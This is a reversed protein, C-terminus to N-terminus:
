TFVGSVAYSAIAEDDLGLVERLIEDTHQGLVPAAHLRPPTESFRTVPGDYPTPGMEGHECTVFFGRHALQPDNYLDSPRAVVSAPVGAAALREVLEWPDQDHCWASLAWDLAAGKAMRGALPTETGCISDLGATACLARWQADTETAIAVYREKGAAQYVGQPCAHDSTHGAPGRMRGNVTYDLVAPELFHIGAEVQALDIYQGLGSRKREFIAAALAAVGYRPAIFDTYAGWTGVPPRDPWATLGHLGSLASGQTGFGRYTADPGTQGCLCTSLMILDPRKEALHRYSFGMADMVGPIFSEVVVDAWDILQHALKSGESLALNLALGRKSANFNAFFQSRDLGAVGDKFPPGLRLVDPRTSSEVHVVTAGHDALAKAILPGVGVWAFDAVKLGEFVRSRTAAPAKRPPAPRPEDLLAQHEGLRPAPRRLKMPTRSLLPAVGPHLKGGVKQWYEREKLQPSEPLDAITRIPAVLLKQDVALRMIEENTHRLFYAGIEEGAASLIEPDVADPAISETWATWGIGTREPALGGEAEISTILNALTRAGLGGLTISSQVWGDKSKWINPFTVGPALEIPPDARQEGSRPPDGGTNPPYGTANMLTWVIAAQSSVDLHQGLGSRERENLAIVVDAAAQAGAHFATQPYGVPLPPRDGDGQMGLLGGAAEVTLETAPRAALPGDQGYPTVSAYILAPNLARLQEYGLGLSTMVGPDFSEVLVDATAVLRELKARDVSSNIDLTASRKGLGVAAWYLSEEPDGERGAVFPPLFRAAAGGPPEIKLVEAGLEALIRGALEARETALDLVRIGALPGDVTTDVAM